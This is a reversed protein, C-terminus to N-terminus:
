SLNFVAPNEYQLNEKNFPLVNGQLWTDLRHPHVASSTKTINLSTGAM